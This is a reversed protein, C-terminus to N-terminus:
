LPQLWVRNISCIENGFKVDFIGVGSVEYYNPLPKGKNDRIALGDKDVKFEDHTKCFPCYCQHCAKWTGWEQLVLGFGHVSHLVHDGQKIKMQRRTPKLSKDKMQVARPSVGPSM